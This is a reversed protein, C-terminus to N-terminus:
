AADPCCTMHALLAARTDQWIAAVGQRGAEAAGANGSRLAAELAVLAKRLRVAGFTASSGALQHVSEVLPLPASQSNTILALVADGDAIMQRILPFLMASGLDTQLERIVAPNLLLDDEEQAPAPLPLRDRTLAAILMDRPVPKTLVMDMGAELFRDREEPLAHATLAIIRAQRNPGDGARIARTAEIGDMGPMSIDTLIVDFARAAAKAVGEIGDCAETVRHGANELMLRLLLRNIDNDEVVLIDLPAPAPAPGPLAKASPPPLTTAAPPALIPLPLRLWFVSGEGPESEVGVSGGLAKTLRRVIGLGLGTGEAQRRYSGDITHFDEFIRDQEEAPIGIGTDIIRFEVMDPQGGASRTTLRETEVTIKGDRTFKVANGILNLLIQRLRGPDGQVRGLRGSLPTHSLINGAQRALGTQNAVCDEVLQDLDFAESAPQIEGAEARSIDLVANVHDLLVRGTSQMIRLLEKQNESLPTEQLLNMSGILGNLPTRMEHSMVAVFRAKAKEGSRAQKLADEVALNAQVRDSIDRLFAVFLSGRDLNRLAISVEMPFRTGDRRWGELEFRQPGKAAAEVIVTSIRAQYDPVLDAPFLLPVAQKGMAEARTYGFMAEAAPNFEVVWGGRNTVVIGDPSNSIIMQLRTGTIQNELAQEQTIRSLRALGLAVLVLLAITVATLIALRALTLSIMERNADSASSFDLLADLSLARALHQIRAAEIEMLPLAARLADDPGDIIPTWEELKARIETIRARNEPLNMFGAYLPSDALLRARSYLVDYWRRVEALSGTSGTAALLAHRFRLSEVEAQMMVWQGNDSDAQEIVNLRNRVDATLVLMATLLCLVIVVLAGRRIMALIFKLRTPLAKPANIM